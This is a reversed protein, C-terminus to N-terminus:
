SFERYDAENLEKLINLLSETSNNDIYKLFGIIANDILKPVSTNWKEGDVDHQTLCLKKTIDHAKSFIDAFTKFEATADDSYKNYGYFFFMTYKGDIPMVLDPLLFHLAKSVGVIRRKSEMVKLKVFVNKLLKMMSNNIQVKNVSCLKYIYLDILDSKLSLVSEKFNDVSTLEAGQQNMNWAELTQMIKTYFSEDNLLSDLDSTLRHMNIIERYLRLDHGSRYKENCYKVFYFFIRKSKFLVGPAKM